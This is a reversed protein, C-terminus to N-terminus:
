IIKFYHKIANKIDDCEKNSIKLTKGTSNDILPKEIRLISIRRGDNIHVVNQAGNVMIPVNHYYFKSPIKSSIPFVFYSDTLSNYKSIHSHWILVPRLKNIESGINTGLHAFYICNEFCTPFLPTKDFTLFKKKNNWFLIRLIKEPLALNSILNNTSDYNALNISIISSKYDSSLNSILNQMMQEFINAPVKVQNGSIYLYDAITRVKILKLQDIFLVMNLGPIVLSKKSSDPLGVEVGFVESANDSDGIYCFYSYAPTAGCKYIFGVKGVFSM